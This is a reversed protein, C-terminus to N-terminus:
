ARPSASRRSLSNRASHRRVGADFPDTKARQGIAEAFARVQVPNVVAVPLGAAGLGAAVVTEVGGTAELAVIHPSLERLRAALKEV